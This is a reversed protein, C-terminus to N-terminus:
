AGFDILCVDFSESDCNRLIINSPKIYRHIVTHTQLKNIIDLIQLVLEYVQSLSFRYGSRLVQKLTPGDIYEQIIYSCPPNEELSDCADYLKVVGPIDLASLVDAERHFLTYEKWNKISDIRLQKVAALKGDSLRKALFVSAQGGHGLERIFTYQDALKEPTKLMDQGAAPDHMAKTAASGSPEDIQSNLTAANEPKHQM